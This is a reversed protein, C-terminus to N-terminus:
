RLVRPARAGGGCVAGHRHRVDAHPHRPRAVGVRELAARINSLAQRAQVYMQGKGVILGASTPPPRAPCPSLTARRAGAAFLRRDTGVAYQDFNALDREDYDEEVRGSAAVCGRSQSLSRAGPYTEELERAVSRMPPGVLRGSPMLWNLIRTLPRVGAVPREASRVMDLEHEVIRSNQRNALGIGAFIVRREEM